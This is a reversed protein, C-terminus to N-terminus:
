PRCSVFFTVIKDVPLGWSAVTEAAQKLHRKQAAEDVPNGACDNHAAIVIVKSGHKKVSIELRKKISGILNADKNEALIKNPGPETIMDVYDVGFNTMVYEIVPKQVRGDM